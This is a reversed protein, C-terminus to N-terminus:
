ILNVEELRNMAVHLNDAASALNDLSSNIQEFGTHAEKSDQGTVAEPLQGVLKDVFINIRNTIDIIDGTRSSMKQCTQEIFTAETVEASKMGENM